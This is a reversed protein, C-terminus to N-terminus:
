GIAVKTVKPTRYVIIYIRPLGSRLSSRYTNELGPYTEQTSHPETARM